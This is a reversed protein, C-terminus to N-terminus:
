KELLQIVYLPALLSWCSLVNTLLLDHSQYRTHNVATVAARWPPTQLKLQLGVDGWGKRDALALGTQALKINDPDWHSCYSSLSLRIPTIRHYIAKGTGDSALKWREWIFM